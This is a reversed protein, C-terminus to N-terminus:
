PGSQELDTSRLWAATRRLAEEHPVTACWDLEHRARAPDFPNDRLLMRVARRLSPQHGFIRRLADSAGAAGVLLPVPIRVFRPEHGLARALLQLLRRATVPADESLNYARGITGDRELTLGTAGVQYLKAGSENIDSGVVATGNLHWVGITKMTGGIEFKYPLPVTVDGVLYYADGIDGFFNPSWHFKGGVAAFGFDYGAGFGAEVFDYNLSSRAGPYTYYIAFADLTIGRIETTLGATYDIEIQAEDGDKFNVNSAWVGAYPSITFGGIEFDKTRGVSGQIAPERDTQSIGRFRYDTPLAVSASFTGLQELATDLTDKEEAAAIATTGALLCAAMCAVMGKQM